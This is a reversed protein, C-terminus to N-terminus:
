VELEDLGAGTADLVQGTAVRHMVTLKSSIAHERTIVDREHM